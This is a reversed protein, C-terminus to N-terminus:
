AVKDGARCRAKKDRRVVFAGVARPRAAAVKPLRGRNPRKAFAAMARVRRKDTPARTLGRVRGKSAERPAPQLLALPAAATLRPAWAVVQSAKVPRVAPELTLKVGGVRGFAGLCTGTSAVLLGQRGEGEM